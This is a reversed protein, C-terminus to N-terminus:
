TVKATTLLKKEIETLLAMMLDDAASILLEACYEIADSYKKSHAAAAAVTLNGHAVLHRIGQCISIVNNHDHSCFSIVDKRIHQVTEDAIIEMLLHNDRLWDALEENEIRIRYIEFICGGSKKDRKLYRDFTEFQYYNKAITSTLVDLASYALYVSFIANYGNVTNKSYDKLKLGRFSKCLDRRAFYRSIGRDIGHADPDDTKTLQIWRSKLWDQKRKTM